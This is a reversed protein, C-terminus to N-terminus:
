NAYKTFDIILMDPIGEDDFEVYVPYVGDGLGSKSVVATGTGIQSTVGDLAIECFEGWDKGFEKTFKNDSKHLYYCPDGVMILGSDVFVKGVQVLEKM